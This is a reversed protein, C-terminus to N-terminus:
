QAKPFFRRTVLFQPEILWQLYAMPTQAMSTKSYLIQLKRECKPLSQKWEGEVCVVTQPGTLQYNQPCTIKVLSGHTIGDGM